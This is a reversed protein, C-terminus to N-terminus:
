KILEEPANVILKNRNKTYECTNYGKRMTQLVAFNLHYTHLTTLTYFVGNAGAMTKLQKTTKFYTSSIKM